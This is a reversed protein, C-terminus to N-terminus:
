ARLWPNLLAVETPEFDATNRTVVTMGHVLATAAILADREARRDPVHLRACRLAVATDVPLTRRSFEPLVQQELWARLMAGQAADKREMALVGLELEQVTVVSVYLDAADVSAAWAVVGPDAKGARIKRLESVVNTDLVYM